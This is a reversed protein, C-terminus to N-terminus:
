VAKRPLLEEPFPRSLDGADIPQALFAEGLPIRERGAQCADDFTDWVSLVEDGKIVVFRGEQGEALLRPLERLYTRIEQEIPDLSM